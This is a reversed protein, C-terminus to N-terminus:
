ALRSQALSTSGMACLEVFAVSGRVEARPRKQATRCSAQGSCGGLWLKHRSSCEEWLRGLRMKQSSKLGPIDSLEKIKNTGPSLISSGVLPKCFRQEVASSVRGVRQEQLM